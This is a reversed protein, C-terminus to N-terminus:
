IEAERLAVPAPETVPLKTAPRERRTALLLGTGRAACVIVLAFFLGYSVHLIMLASYSFAVGLGFVVENLPKTPTTGRDTVM